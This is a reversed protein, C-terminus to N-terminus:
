SPVLWIKHSASVEEWGRVKVLMPMLAPLPDKLLAPVDVDEETAIETVAM